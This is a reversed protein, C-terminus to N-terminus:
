LKRKPQNEPATPEATGAAKPMSISGSIIAGAGISISKTNIDGTVGGTESISTQEIAKINGQLNGAIAINRGSINGTIRANVGITVNGHANINGQLSGDIVIDGDTVLNGKLKVGSGIVTDASDIGILDHRKAV